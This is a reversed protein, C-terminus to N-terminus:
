GTTTQRTSACTRTGSCPPTRAGSATSRRWIPASTGPSTGTVRSSSTSRPTSISRRARSSRRTRSCSTGPTSATSPPSPRQWRSASRSRQGEARRYCKPSSTRRTPWLNGRMYEAVESQTLEELYAQLEQKFNRWTFYTYSQSFGVKALRKMVKPRTFAEALFVVDPYVDQLQRIVWEWFPIPKTHPNDVRFIRVGREIWFVFVSKLEEWLTDRAPGLWDFNSIDEYRKPPNEATKLTGDPRWSFWEPHEKVWPHDPSVQFAIDLAVEIGRRNASQVFRRFDELTGLRPHVSTHGGEAAGIAWPSGVDDPEAVLSNNKGKRATRGIPHIPPLYVVDFGLSQVHDLFKEADQFTGHTNGDNRTSRPFFEYWAGVQARRRDVFVELERDQRVGISRDPYKSAVETLSPDLAVRTVEPSSAPGGRFLAAADRMRQADVPSAAARAAAAELLVAGELLESTVDRGAERKRQLESVWTAFLDPWAEVTFVYRGNVHVPFSGEFRDNGVARMATEEWETAATAPSVQRWRVVAVLVDHGEKFIDASVGVDEGVIRKVPHRGGDVTPQVNEIIISGIQESM